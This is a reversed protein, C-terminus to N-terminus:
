EARGLQVYPLCVGVSKCTAVVDKSVARNEVARMPEEVVVDDGARTESGRMVQACLIPGGNQVSTLM